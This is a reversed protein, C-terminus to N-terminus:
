EVDNIEKICFFPNNELTQAPTKKWYINQATEIKVLKGDIIRHDVSSANFNKDIIVYPETWTTDVTVTDARSTDFKGTDKNYPLRREVAIKTKKFAALAQALEGFENNYDWDESM